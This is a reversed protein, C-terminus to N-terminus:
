NRIVRTTRSMRFGQGTVGTATVRVRLFSGKDAAKVVYTKSTAGTIATCAAPITRPNKLGAKTCSFWQYAYTLPGNTWQGRRGAITSGAAALGNSVRPPRAKISAPKPGVKASSASLIDTTGGNGTASVKVRLWSDSDLATIVYSASTAGTIKTCTSPVTVETVTSASTCQYWQYAYTNAYNWIGNTATISAGPSTYGSLVPALSSVPAPKAPGGGGASPATYTVTESGDVAAAPGSNSVADTVSSTKLRPRITGNSCSAVTVTYILGAGADATAVSFVCGTSTFTAANEIDGGALGTVAENFTLRWSLGTLSTQAGTAEASWTATPATGDVSVDVCDPDEGGSTEDSADTSALGDTARICYETTGDTLSATVTSKWRASVPDFTMATWTAGGAVNYEVSQIVEDAGVATAQASIEFDDGPQLPAPTAAAGSVTPAQDDYNVVVDYSIMSGDYDDWGPVAGFEFENHTYSALPYVVPNNKVIGYSDTLTVPAVGVLGSINLTICGAGGPPQAGKLKQCLLPDASSDIILEIDLIKDPPLQAATLSVETQILDGGGENGDSPGIVWTDERPHSFYVYAGSQYGATRQPTSSGKALVQHDLFGLFGASGVPQASLDVTGKMTIRDSAAPTIISPNDRQYQVSSFSYLDANAPNGVYRLFYGPYEGGLASNVYGIQGTIRTNLAPPVPVAEAQPASVLSASLLSLSALAIVFRKFSV